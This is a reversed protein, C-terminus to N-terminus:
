FMNDAEPPYSLELNSLSISDDSDDDKYADLTSPLILDNPTVTDTFAPSDMSPTENPVTMHLLMPADSHVLSVGRPTPSSNLTSMDILDLTASSTKQPSDAAQNWSASKKSLLLDVFRRSNVLEKKLRGTDNVAPTHPLALEGNHTTGENAMTVLQRSQNKKKRRKRAVTLKSTADLIARSFFLPTLLRMPPIEDVHQSGRVAITPKSADLSSRFPHSRRTSIKVSTAAKETQKGVQVEINASFPPPHAM